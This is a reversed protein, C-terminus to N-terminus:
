KQQQISQNSTQNSDEMEFIIRISGSQSECQGIQKQQNPIPATKEAKNYKQQIWDVEQM